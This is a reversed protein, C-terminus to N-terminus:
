AYVFYGGTVLFSLMVFGGIISLLDIEPHEQKIIVGETDYEISSPGDLLSRHVVGNKIWLQTWITGTEYYCINAPGDQRHIQGNYYWSECQKRGNEFYKIYSPGILNHYQHNDLWQKSLIVGSNYYQVSYCKSGNHWDQRKIGGNKYYETLSPNNLYSYVTGSKWWGIRRVNGSDHFLMEAANGIRHREGNRWWVSAYINGNKRFVNEAPGNLRNLRGHMLWFEIYGNELNSIFAPSYKSHFKGKFNLWFIVHTLSITRLNSRYEFPCATYKWNFYKEEADPPLDLCNNIMCLIGERLFFTIRKSTDNYIDLTKMMLRKNQLISNVCIIGDKQRIGMYQEVHLTISLPLYISLVDIASM